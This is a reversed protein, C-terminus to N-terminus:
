EFTAWSDPETASKSSQQQGFPKLTSMQEAVANKDSQQLIQLFDADSGEETQTPDSAKASSESSTAQQTM